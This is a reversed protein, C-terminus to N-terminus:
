FGAGGAYLVGQPGVIGVGVGNFDASRMLLAVSDTLEDRVAKTHDTSSTGCGSIFLVSCLWGSAIAKHM